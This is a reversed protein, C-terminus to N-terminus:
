VEKWYPWTIILADWIDLVTNSFIELSSSECIKTTMFTAEYISVRSTTDKRTNEWKMSSWNAKPDIVFSRNATFCFTFAEAEFLFCCIRSKWLFRTNWDRALSFYMFHIARYYLDGPPSDRDRSLLDRRQLLHSLKHSGRRFLPVEEPASFRWLIAPLRLKGHATFPSPLRHTGDLWFLSFFVWLASTLSPLLGLARSSLKCNKHSFNPKVKITYSM